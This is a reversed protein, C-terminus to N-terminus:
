CHSRPHIPVIRKRRGTRRFGADKTRDIANDFCCAVSTEHGLSTDAVGYTDPLDDASQAVFDDDRRCRADQKSEGRPASADFGPIHEDLYIRGRSDGGTFQERLGALVDARDLKEARARTPASTGAM